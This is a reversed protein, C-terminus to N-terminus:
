DDRRTIRRSGPSKGGLFRLPDRSPASYIETGGTDSSEDDEHAPRSPSPRPGWIKKWREVVAIRFDRATKAQSISKRSM